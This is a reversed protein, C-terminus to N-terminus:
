GNNNARELAGAIVSLAGVVRQQLEQTGPARQENLGKITVPLPTVLYKALSRAAAARVLGPENFDNMLDGLVILPNPEKGEAAMEDMRALYANRFGKTQKRVEIAKQTAVLATESTFPALAVVPAESAAPPVEKKPFPLGRAM